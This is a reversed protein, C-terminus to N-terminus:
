FSIVNELGFSRLSLFSPTHLIADLMNDSPVRFMDVEQITDTKSSYYVLFFDKWAFLIDGDQFIKIPYLVASMCNAIDFDIVLKSTVFKKTWSREVGYEKMVWIAIEYESTNDCLGLCNGWEFLTLDSYNLSRGNDPFPPVHTTSFSETELDFCSIKICCNADRVVWHINGNLFLGTVHDLYEVWGGSAARRWSGTGLTYVHSEVESTVLWRWTVPDLIRYHFIRVVKYQGSRRSSGFGYTVRQHSTYAFEQPSNINFYERTIPNCLYLDDPKSELASLECMFLLGDTSGYLWGTFSLDFLTISNYHLDHDEIVVEDKFELFNYLDSWNDQRFVMLGRVSKSLHSKVFGPSRVLHLWSKCVCKCIMVSQVPVRSLIEVIVDSPLMNFLNSIIDNSSNGQNMM